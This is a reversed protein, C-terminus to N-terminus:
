RSRGGPQDKDLDGARWQKALIAIEELERTGQISGSSAVSELDAGLFLRRIPVELKKGNLTKPLAVMRFIRDPVHRPSISVKLATRISAALDDFDDTEAVLFLILQGPTDMSSTDVVLAEIVGPVAEVVGYFDATGMRVGGRNLTSDSRGFIISTGDEYLTIWDGHRWVGPFRDFYAAHYRSRDLDGWFGVPMSPIPGEIVLEGMEGTVSEGAENYAKVAVGLAATSIRGLYTPHLPSSGLFATCVDTGGSTSVLQVSAPVHDYVWRFSSATLPAGTSGILKLSAGTMHTEPTVEAAQCAQLFPASVGFYEIKVEDVLRWLRSFDPYNPAGDALIITAGVLLGGVLFNWMMWGTSTYWFFRSGTTIGAQLELVKKHELVIGGHSHVIAKPIGTTGSSYLVWLPHNFPVRIFVPQAAEGFADFLVTPVGLEPATAGVIVVLRLSPIGSVIAALEGSRDIRRGNYQYETAAILVKPEIQAFRDIVASSGFDPSCCSWIAGLGATGNLAVVAELINPLYAAVRDGDGVWHRLGDQFRGVLRWFEGASTSTVKGNEGVTVVESPDAFRAHAEEAYNVMGEPFFEADPLEGVLDSGGLTGALMCFDAVARFFEGPQEISAEYLEKYSREALEFRDAYRDIFAVLPSGSPDVPTWVIEAHSDRSM